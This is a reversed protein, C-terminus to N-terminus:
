VVPAFVPGLEVPDQVEDERYPRARHQEVREVPREAGERDVRVVPRREDHSCPQEDPDRDEDDEPCSAVLLPERLGPRGDALPRLGGFFQLVARGRPVSLLAACMISRGVPGGTLDYRVLKWLSSFGIESPPIQSLPRLSPISQASTM